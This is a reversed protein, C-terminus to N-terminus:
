NVNMLLVKERALYCRLRLSLKLEVFLCRSLSANWLCETQQPTQKHHCRGLRWNSKLTISHDGKNFQLEYKNFFVSDLYYNPRLTVVTQVAHKYMFMQKNILMQVRYEKSHAM